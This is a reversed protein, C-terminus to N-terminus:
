TARQDGLRRFALAFHKRVPLSSQPCVALIYGCRESKIGECLSDLASWFRPSATLGKKAQVEM